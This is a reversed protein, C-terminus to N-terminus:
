LTGGLVCTKKASTVNGELDFLEIFIVYVGIRAKAGEENIGDWSITGRSGVYTNRTLMRVLRGERDFISINVVQGANELEYNINLVDEFGDNDPSFVEPEVSFSQGAANAPQLQSNEYGPTAWGVNEAASHWNTPDNTLRNYDVRELSVGNVDDILAFHYSDSYFFEDQVTVSPDILLVYGEDDNYSPLDNIEIYNSPVGLPYEFAINQSDETVVKFQGPFLLVEEATISKINAIEGLERNAMKWNKLSLTRTSSNYIEVFDYGGTRPNFLVENIILDGAQATEPIAILFEAVETIENGSCDEIGSIGLTYVVGTDLPSSLVLIIRDGAVLQISSINLEPSFNFDVLDLSGIEIFEDFIISVQNVSQLLASIVHPATIDPSLDLVSNEQGPTGGLISSSAKWNDINSCPLEPNIREISYGGEDKSTDHYWDLTYIVEDILDASANYLHLDDGDNSLASFSEFAYVQGFGELAAASSDDCLILYEGPGLQYSAMSMVTTTNVLTWGALNLYKDSRNYIELYEEEPLGISPSPDAMIENFIVDGPEAVDPVIFTLTIPAIVNGSCDSAGEVTFSYETGPVLAPDVSLSLETPSQPSLPILTASPTLSYQGTILSLEDMVESFTLHLTSLDTVSLSIIEPAINDEAIFNSNQTGPTGGAPDQSPGWNAASSCPLFPNKRELSYGGDSFPLGGYWSTAYTVEDIVSGNADLLHLDDGTNSLATLSSVVLVQGYASFITQFADDCIIVYEGPLLIFSNLIEDEATNRLNWGGLDFAVDSANFLEVYEADPLGIIPTPDALIENIVVDGPGPTGISVFTFDLDVDEIVNGALDEVNSVSLTQEINAPFSSTFTLTVTQGSLIASNPNEGNWSYSTISEASSVEVPESFILEIQNADLVNLTQLTPPIVDIFGDGTVNVDDFFFLTSRTSTYDCLIGFYSSLTHTDEFTTGESTYTGTLGVDSFLEWNGIADRTVRIAVEVATLDLIGDLGDIIKTSTAGTQRYLSVEDATNGIMVYYGNLDAELDAQDSVLYVYTRNSSSPNFDMRVQIEWTANNIIDSPTILHSENDAAPANLHLELNAHVEFDSVDGTWMPNISFDGDSFDDIVQANSSFVICCCFTFILNVFPISYFRM